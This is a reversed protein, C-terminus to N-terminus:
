KEKEEEKEQQRLYAYLQEAARRNMAPAVALEDVTAAKINSLSGFSKLLSRRRKEGIGPATDLLSATQGKGRLSRHFTIAFRHAEDRIQQLIHLAESDRPLIVPQSRGPLFVEEERKALSVIATPAAGIESLRECVSSLQGKGGDIVLLDPFLAFGDSRGQARDEVGHKWRRELVEQLAAFDNSGDLTKIKFKRYQKPDAVGNTFVTMSGVMYTGQVHSIDYCEIRAPTRPLELVRRLEELGAAVKEERRLRSTLHNLLVIRANEAVLGLLRKKDGRQPVSLTVRHGSQRTLLEELAAKDEPQTNCCILAPARDGGGYYDMIFSSLIQAEDGAACHHLFFHERSVVVGGRLFFVQVVSTDDGYNDTQDACAAAIVDYDGSGTATDLLRKEQLKELAAARDRHRAAEEFDLVGAASEMAQREKRILERSKGQLFQAIQEVRSAYEERSIHEECPAPCRGIHANLCARKGQKLEAGSCTRLPFLELIAEVARHMGGVDPYPGFYRSGDGAARRSVLLRPYTENLTLRLYPYHKDDRLLINYRPMHRKVLNAELILAESESDVVVTEFDVIDAVLLKTKPDHSGHFYSSVRRKLNVAKGVYIVTGAADKMLYCGPLDPLQKLKEAILQNM